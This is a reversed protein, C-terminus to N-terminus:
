IAKVITTIPSMTYEVVYTVVKDEVNSIVCDFDYMYQKHIHVICAHM